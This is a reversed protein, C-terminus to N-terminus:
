ETAIAFGGTVNATVTLEGASVPTSISASDMAMAAPAARFFSEEQARLVRAGAESLYELDGLSVGAATAMQEAKALMDKVAMERAQEMLPAPDEITFDIGNVRTLDGGAEVLQDILMGSSDLDRVKATLQQSVVYGTVVQEYTTYCNDQSGMAFGAMMSAMAGMASEVSASDTTAQATRAPATPAPATPAPMAPTMAGEEMASAEPCRRVERGQTEQRINLSSTQIDPDELGASKLADIMATLATAAEANAEAVTPYTARVGVELLALDPSAKVQGQGNAWLGKQQGSVGIGYEVSKAPYEMLEKTEMVEVAEPTPASPMPTDANACGAMVAVGLVGVTILAAVVNRPKM